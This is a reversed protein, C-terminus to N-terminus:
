KRKLLRFRWLKILEALEDMWEAIQNIAAIRGAGRLYRFGAGLGAIRALTLATELIRM